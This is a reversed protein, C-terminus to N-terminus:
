KEKFYQIFKSQSCFYTNKTFIRHCLSPCTRSYNKCFKMKKAVKLQAEVYRCEAYRCEAYRCLMYPKCTVSLM